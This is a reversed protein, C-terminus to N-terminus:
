HFCLQPQASGSTQDLRTGPWCAGAGESIGGAGGDAIAVAVAGNSSDSPKAIEKAFKKHTPLAALRKKEADVIRQEMKEETDWCTCHEVLCDRSDDFCTRIVAPFKVSPGERWGLTSAGLETLEGAFVDVSGSENVRM